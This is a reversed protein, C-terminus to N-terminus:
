HNSSNFNIRRGMFFREGLQTNWWVDGSALQYPQRACAPICGMYNEKKKQRYNRLPADSEFITKVM